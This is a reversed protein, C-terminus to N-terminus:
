NTNVLGKTRGLLLDAPPLLCGVQQDEGCVIHGVYSQIPLQPPQHLGMIALAMQVLGILVACGALQHTPM